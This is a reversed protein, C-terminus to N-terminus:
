PSSYQWRWVALPMAATAFFEPSSPSAADLARERAGPTARSAAAFAEALVHRATPGNAGSSFQTAPHAREAFVRALAHRAGHATGDCWLIKKLLRTFFDKLDRSLRGM